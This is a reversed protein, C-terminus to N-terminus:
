QRACRKCARLAKLVTRRGLGGSRGCRGNRRIRGRLHWYQGASRTQLNFGKAMIWHFSAFGDFNAQHMRDIGASLKNNGLIRRETTANDLELGVGFGAQMRPKPAIERWKVCGPDLEVLQHEGGARKLDRGRGCVIARRHEM